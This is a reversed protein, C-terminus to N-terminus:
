WKGHKTAHYHEKFTKSVRDVLLKLYGLHSKSVVYCGSSFTTEM